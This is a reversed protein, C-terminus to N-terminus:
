IMMLISHGFKDSFLAFQGHMFTVHSLLPLHQVQTKFWLFAPLRGAQRLDYTKQILKTVM